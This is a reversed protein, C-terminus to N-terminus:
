QDRDYITMILGGGVGMSHSVYVGNCFLAAVAADVATGNRRL